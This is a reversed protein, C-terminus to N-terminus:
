SLEVHLAGFTAFSIPQLHFSLLTYTTFYNLYAAIYTNKTYTHLLSTILSYYMYIQKHAECIKALKNHM